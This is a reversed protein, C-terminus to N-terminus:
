ARSTCNAIIALIQESFKERSFKLAHQKIVETNYGAYNDNLRRVGDALAEPIPDDFFEGSIGERIIELAGGRRLALVPKGFSMAEVPTLGFDEEQPMIFARCHKYYNILTRDDRFGAFKINKQAMKKLKRKVPGDGIIILDYGLKNFADIAIDINKHPYLRSVILYFESNPLGYNQMQSDPKTTYDDDELSLPPYIVLADRRYYKKIRTRVTESIAVFEDVRDSASRDWLRLFHRSLNILYKNKSAYEAHYDWLFRTPSYCYCIHLTKPKLVLGKSFIVSSSIVVDYDSLDFSEATAPMLFFLYKYIKTILPIKQLWSTRIDADPLFKKLFNKNYFLTYIPAEPIIRHLEALVREAGGLNNLWDHVIAIKM